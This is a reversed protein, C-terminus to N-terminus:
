VELTGVSLDMALELKIKSGWPVSETILWEPQDGV